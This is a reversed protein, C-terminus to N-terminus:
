FYEISDLFGGKNYETLKMKEFKNEDENYIYMFSFWQENVKQRAAIHIEGKIIKIDAPTLSSAITITRVTKDSLDVISFQSDPLAGSVNGHIVYAKNQYIVFKSVYDQLKAIEYFRKTKQDFKVLLNAKQDGKENPGVVTYLGFLGQEKSYFLQDPIEEDTEYIIHSDLEELNINFLTGGNKNDPYVTVFVDHGVGIVHQVESQTPIRLVFDKLELDFIGIENQSGTVLYKKFTHFSREPLFNYGNTLKYKYVQGDNRLELFGSFSTFPRGKAPVDYRLMISNRHHNIQIGYAFGRFENLQITNLHDKEHLIGLSTVYNFIYSQETFVMKEELEKSNFVFTIMVVVALLILTFMIKKVM